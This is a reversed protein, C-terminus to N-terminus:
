SSKGIKEFRGWTGLPAKRMQLTKQRRYVSEPPAKHGLASLLRGRKDWFRNLTFLAKIKHQIEIEYIKTSNHTFKANKIYNQSETSVKLFAGSSKLSEFHNLLAKRRHVMTKKKGVGM